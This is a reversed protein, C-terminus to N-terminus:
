NNVIKKCFSIYNQKYFVDTYKILNNKARQLIDELQDIPTNYISNVTKVLEPVSDNVAYPYDYGLVENTGTGKGIIPVINNFLCEIHSFGFPEYLSNGFFIFYKELKTKNAGKLTGKYEVNNLKSLFFNLIVENHTRKGSYGGIVDLTFKPLFEMGNLSCVLGKRYDVRGLYLIKNSKSIHQTAQTDLVYQISPPLIKSPINTNYFGSFVKFDVATSFVLGDILKLFFKEYDKGVVTGVPYKKTPFYTDMCERLLRVEEDPVNHITAIKKLKIKKLKQIKLKDATRSELVGIHLSIFDFNSNIYEIDKRTLNYADYVHNDPINFLRCLNRIYTGIGNAIYLPVNSIICFKM